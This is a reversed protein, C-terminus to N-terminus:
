NIGWTNKLFNQASETTWVSDLFQDRGSSYRYFKYRLQNVKYYNQHYDEAPFFTKFPLVETQIMQDFIKEGSTDTINSSQLQQKTQEIMERQGRSAYFFASRYQPGHDVFQGDAQIPNINQWLVYILQRYSVIKPDYVVKVSEIHQTKGSSVEQYTPNDEDGGSYGSIVESVGDIKEFASEVCWFCGGAAFFNEKTQESANEMSYVTGLFIFILLYLRVIYGLIRMMDHMWLREVILLTSM